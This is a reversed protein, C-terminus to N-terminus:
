GGHELAMDGGMDGVLHGQFDCIQETKIPQCTPPTAGFREEFSTSNCNSNTDETWDVSYLHGQVDYYAFFGDLGHLSSYIVHGDGCTGIWAEFCRGNFGNPLRARAADYDLCNGRQCWDALPGVCMPTSALDTSGGGDVSTCGAIALM